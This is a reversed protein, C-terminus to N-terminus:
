IEEDTNESKKSDSKAQFSCAHHIATGYGHKANEKTKTAHSMMCFLREPKLGAFCM